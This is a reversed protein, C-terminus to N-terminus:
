IEKLNKAERTATNPSFSMEPSTSGRLGTALFTLLTITCRCYSAAVKSFSKAKSSSSEGILNSACIPLIKM